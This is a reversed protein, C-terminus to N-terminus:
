LLCPPQQPAQIAHTLSRVTCTVKSMHCEICKSSASWLHKGTFVAIRCPPFHFECWKLLLFYPSGGGGVFSSTLVLAWMGLALKPTPCVQASTKATRGKSPLRPCTMHGRPAEAEEERPLFPLQPLQQRLYWTLFPGPCLNLIVLTM